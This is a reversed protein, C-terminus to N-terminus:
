NSSARAARQASSIMYLERQPGNGASYMVRQTHLALQIQVGRSRDELYVSWDDRGREAFRFTVEGNTNTEVWRNATRREFGGLLRNSFDSYRVSVVDRGNVNQAAVPMSLILAIFTAVVVLPGASQSM